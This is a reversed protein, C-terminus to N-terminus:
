AVAETGQAAQEYASLPTQAVGETFTVQWGPGTPPPEKGPPLCLKWLAAVHAPHAMCSGPQPARAHEALILDGVRVIVRQEGEEVLVTRGVHDPHVSYRSRDLHVFGEVSVQRVSRRLFRYPSLSAYPTLGEAALLDLPRQKTTAHIRVNATHTLWHRGQANLDALDAFTRGLLFNDKVYDVMREVKGKTRARRVRCTHPLLGYYHAFDLYLPNWERRGPLMVQAMNDYLLEKPWGGLFAFAERHCRLLQELEMSTTFEVYMMRSFGLVMVFIYIKVPQGAADSFCGAYAWDVQAQRGPPTEFRVTARAQARQEGRLTALFRQLVCLSGNFGMPRIEELLRVASLPCEQLRQRLYPKFPDLKSPRPPVHFPEPAAQRLLKAITNRSYGTMRAIARASHGQNALMKVDMWEEVKLM